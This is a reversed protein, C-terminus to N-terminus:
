SGSTIGLPFPVITVFGSLSLSPNSLTPLLNTPFLIRKQSVFHGGWLFPPLNGQIVSTTPYVGLSGVVQTPFPADQRSKTTTWKSLGNTRISTITFLCQLGEEGGEGGARGAFMRSDCCFWSWVLSAGERKELNTLRM